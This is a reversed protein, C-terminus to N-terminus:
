FDKSKYAMKKEFLVPIEKSCSLNPSILNVKLETKEQSVNVYEQKNKNMDARCYTAVHVKNHCRFSEINYNIKKQDMTYLVNESRITGKNERQIIEKRRLDEAILKASIDKLNLTKIDKCDQTICKINVEFDSRVGQLLTLITDEDSIKCGMKQLETKEKILRDIFERMSECSGQKITLFKIRALSLSYWNKTEYRDKLEKWMDKALEKDMIGVLISDTVGMIIKNMAKKNKSINLKVQAIIPAKELDTGITPMEGIVFEDEIADACDIDALVQKMRKSWTLFDKGDFPKIKSELSSSMRFM